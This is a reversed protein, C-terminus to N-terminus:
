DEQHSAGTTELRTHPHARLQANDQELQRIRDTLRLIVEVGALNVGMDETLRRIQRVQELDSVSYLRV